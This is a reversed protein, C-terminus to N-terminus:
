TGLSCPREDDDDDDDVVVFVILSVLAVSPSFSTAIIVGHLALVNKHHLVAAMEAEHLFLQDGTTGYRLCVKEQM